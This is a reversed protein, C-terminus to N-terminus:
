NGAQNPNVSSSVSPQCLPQHDDNSETAKKSKKMKTGHGETQTGTSAETSLWLLLVCSRIKMYIFVCNAGLFIV